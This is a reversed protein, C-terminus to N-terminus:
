RPAPMNYQAWEEKAPGYIGPVVLGAQRLLITLQGRHHVEHRILIQLTVGKTWTEGYMNVEEELSADTWKEEVEALLGKASKEYLDLIDKATEPAPAGEEPAELSLGTGNAMESVSTALHWALDAITRGGEYVKQGLSADSITSLIKLTGQSEMAWDSLFESITRYM